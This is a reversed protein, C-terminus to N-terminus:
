CDRDRIDDKARRFFTREGLSLVVNQLLVDTVGRAPCLSVNRLPAADAWHCESQFTTPVNWTGYGAFQPRCM